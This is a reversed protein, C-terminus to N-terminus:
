LSRSCWVIFLSGRHCIPLVVKNGFFCLTHPFSKRYVTKNVVAGFHSIAIAGGAGPTRFTSRRGPLKALFPSPPRQLFSRAMLPRASEPAAKIRGVGVVVGRKIIYLTYSNIQIPPHSGTFFSAQQRRGTINLMLTTQTQLHTHLVGPVCRNMNVHTPILASKRSCWFRVALQLQSRSRQSRFEFRM